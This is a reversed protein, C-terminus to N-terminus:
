RSSPGAPRPAVSLTQATAPNLTIRVPSGQAATVAGTIPSQTIRAADSTTQEPFVAVRALESVSRIISTIAPKSGSPDAPQPLGDAAFMGALALAAVVPFTAPHTRLVVLWETAAGRMLDATVVLRTSDGVDLVELTLHALDEGYRERWRRPYLAIAARIARERSM